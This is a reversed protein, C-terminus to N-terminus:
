DLSKNKEYVGAAILFVGVFLTVLWALAMSLTVGCLLMSGICTMNVMMVIWMIYEVIKM